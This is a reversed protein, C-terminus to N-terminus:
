NAAVAEARLGPPLTAIQEPSLGVLTEARVRPDIITAIFTALSDDVM